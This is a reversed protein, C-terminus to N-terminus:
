IPAEYGLAVSRIFLTNATTALFNVFSHRSLTVNGAVVGSQQGVSLSVYFDSVASDNEMLELIIQEGAGLASEMHLAMAKIVMDHPLCHQVEEYNATWAISPLGAAFGFYKETSSVRMAGSVGAGINPSRMCIVGSGSHLGTTAQQVRLFLGSGVAALHSYTWSAPTPLTGASLDATRALAYVKRDALAASVLDDANAYGYINSPAGFHAADDCNIDPNSAGAEVQVVLGLNGSYTVPTALPFYKRGTSSLDITGFTTLLTEPLLTDTNLQYIGCRALCGGGGHTLVDLGFRDFTTSRPLFFPSVRAEPRAWASSAYGSALNGGYWRGPAFPHFLATAGAATSDDVDQKRIVDTGVVPALVYLPGIMRPESASVLGHSGSYFPNRYAM